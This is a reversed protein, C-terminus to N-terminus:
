VDPPRTRDFDILCELRAHGESARVADMFAQHYEDIEHPSRRATDRNKALDRGRMYYILYDGDIAWELFVSEIFVGEDVLTVLVEDQRGALEAQWERVRELSGPKLKMRVCDVEAGNESM